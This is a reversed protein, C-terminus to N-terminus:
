GRAPTIYVRVIMQFRADDASGSAVIFALSKGDPLHRMAKSDIEYVQGANEQFGIDSATKVATHLGQFVLWGDDDIDTLPDPLSAVGATIARDNVVIAGIAGIPRQTAVTQDSSWMCSIRTRRITLRVSNAAPVFSGLLVKTNGGVVTTGIVLGSWAGSPRYPKVLQRGPRRAM